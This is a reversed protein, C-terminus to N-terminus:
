RPTRQVCLHGVHHERMQQMLFRTQPDENETGKVVKRVTLWGLVSVDERDSQYSSGGQLM